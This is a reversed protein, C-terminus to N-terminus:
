WGSENMYRKTYHLVPDDIQLINKAHTFRVTYGFVNKAENRFDRLKRRGKSLKIEKEQLFYVLTEDYMIVYRSSDLSLLLIDMVKIILSILGIGNLSNKLLRGLFQPQMVLSLIEKFVLCHIFYDFNSTMNM